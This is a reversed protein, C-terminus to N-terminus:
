SEKFTLKRKTFPLVGPVIRGLTLLERYALVAPRRELLHLYRNTLIFEGFVDWSEVQPYTSESLSVKGISTNGAETVGDADMASMLEKEVITIQKEIDKVQSNLSKKISQLECLSQLLEKTTSM